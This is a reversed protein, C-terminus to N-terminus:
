IYNVRFGSYSLNQKLIIVKECRLYLINNKYYDFKIVYKKERFSIIEM